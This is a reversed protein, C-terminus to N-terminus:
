HLSNPAPGPRPAASVSTSPAIGDLNTEAQPAGANSRSPANAPSAHLSFLVGMAAAGIAVGIGVWAYAPMRALLSSPDNQPLPPLPTAFHAPPAITTALPAVSIPTLSSRDIPVPIARSSEMRPTDMRARVAGPNFGEVESPTLMRMPPIPPANTSRMPPPRQTSMPRPLPPPVSRPRVLTPPPSDIEEEDWDLELEPASEPALEAARTPKVSLTPGTDDASAAILKASEASPQIMTRDAGDEDPLLPVCKVIRTDDDTNNRTGV